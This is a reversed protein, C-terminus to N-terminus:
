VKHCELLLHSTNPIVRFQFFEVLVEQVHTCLARSLNSSSIPSLYSHNMGQKNFEELREELNVTYELQIKFRETSKCTLTFVSCVLDLERYQASYSVTHYVSSPIKWWVRDTTPPTYIRLIDPIPSSQMYLSCRQLSYRTSLRQLLILHNHDPM